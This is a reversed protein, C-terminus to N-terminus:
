LFVGYAVEIIRGSPVEVLVLDPGYRVWRAGPPPPPLGVHAYSDWFYRSSLFAAPLMMGVSWRRYAYGPPYYFAPAPARGM